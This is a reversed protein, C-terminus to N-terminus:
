TLPSRAIILLQGFSADPDSVERDFANWGLRATVDLLARGLRKRRWARFHHMPWSGFLEVNEFQSAIKSKLEEGSFEFVHREDWKSGAQRNPTTIIVFGAPKLVRRIQSLMDDVHPLHEIVDAMVVVDFRADSFPLESGKSLEFRVNPMNSARQRAIRIGAEEAELGTVISRTFSKGILCTLYGDGCGIDLIANAEAPIRKLISSYRSVLPANFKVGFRSTEQWHYGGRKDYKDFVIAM